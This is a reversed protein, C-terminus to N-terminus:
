TTAGRTNEQLGTKFLVVQCSALSDGIYTQIGILEIM